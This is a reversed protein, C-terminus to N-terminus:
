RIPLSALAATRAADMRRRARDARTTVEACGWCFRVGSTTDRKGFPHFM